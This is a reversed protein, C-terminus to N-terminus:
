AADDDMYGTPVNLRGVIAARVMVLRQVQRGEGTWRIALHPRRFHPSIEGKEVQEHFEQGVNWGNIGNQLARKVLKGENDSRRRAGDAPHLDRRILEDNERLLCTACVIRICDKIFSHPVRVGRGLSPLDPVANVAQEVTSGTELPFTVHNFVSKRNYREGFDVWLTIAKVEGPMRTAAILITKAVWSRGDGEFCPSGTGSKPFRLVLEPLPLEIISSDVELNLRLFAPIIGPWLKFYPRRSSYWNSEAAMQNRDTPDVSKRIELGYFKHRGIPVNKPGCEEFMTVFSHFDM